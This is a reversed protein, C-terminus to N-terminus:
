DTREPCALDATALQQIRVQVADLLHIRRDVRDDRDVGLRRPGGGGSVLLDSTTLFEAREVAQRHRDLVRKLRGTHAGGGSEGVQRLIDRGSVGVRDGPQAALPGHDETLGVQRREGHVPLGVVGDETRRVIRPDEPPGAAATAAPM